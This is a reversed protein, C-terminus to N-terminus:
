VPIRWGASVCNAGSGAAAILALHFSHLSCQQACVCRPLRIVIILSINFITSLNSIILEYCKGGVKVKSSTSLIKCSCVDSTQLKCITKM